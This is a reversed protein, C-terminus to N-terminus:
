SSKCISDRGGSGSSVRRPLPLNHASHSKGPARPAPEPSPDRQSPPFPVTSLLLPLLYLLHLQYYLKCKQNGTGSEGESELGKMMNEM